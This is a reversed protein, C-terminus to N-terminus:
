HGVYRYPLFGSTDHRRRDTSNQSAIKHHRGYHNYGSPPQNEISGGATFTGKITDHYIGGEHIIGCLFFLTCRPLVIIGTHVFSSTRGAVAADSLAM